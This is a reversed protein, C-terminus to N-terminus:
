REVTAELLAHIFVADDNSVTVSLLLGGGGGGINLTSFVLVGVQTRINEYAYIRTCSYVYISYYVYM